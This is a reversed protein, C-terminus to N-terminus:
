VRNLKTVICVRVTQDFSCCALLGEQLFYYWLKLCWLKLLSRKVKDPSWDMNSIPQSALTVNQLLSVSGAVGMNRGKDDAKVRKDPYSSCLCCFVMSKSLSCHFM